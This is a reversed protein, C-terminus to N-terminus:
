AQRENDPMPCGLERVADVVLSVGSGKSGKVLLVDGADVLGNASKALEAATEAWSGRMQHPLCDYLTRMRPGVCHVVDLSQMSPCDALEAHLREQDQGLELMDGLVAIRRGRRIRGVGDIPQTVALADLAAEMSAPNANFADDILEFSTGDSIPDLLLREHTGRGEPPQWSSLDHAALALDLGLLEAVGLTALANLAFHRGPVSLMFMLPAKGVRARAVTATATVQVEVLQCFREPGFGFDRGTVGIREAASRLITTVGLEGNFLAAGGAKLGEFISAKERAIGEISGFAELHAPAVTTVLALDLDALRALPAIEGPRNMGIEIVAYDAEKPLRALTLPVGWHNNFSREAAHVRGQRSLASRLMEKTSTKGVSGTVGIAKARSRSRAEFALRELAPLVDEVVLLPSNPGIDDPVRSVLAAAAGREFAAAVFDHGDRADTLAVFLDGPDLTRTDISVGNAVWNSKVCGGTAAAAESATWLPM